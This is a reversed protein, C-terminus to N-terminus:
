GEGECEKIAKLYFINESIMYMLNHGRGGSSIRSLFANFILTLVHKM